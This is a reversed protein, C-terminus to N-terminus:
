DVTAPLGLREYRAIDLVFITAGGVLVEIPSPAYFEGPEVIPMLPNVFRTRAHCNQRVIERVTPVDVLNLVLRDAHRAAVSLAAPGFAPITVTSHDLSAVWHAVKLVVGSAAGMLWWAPADLGFPYALVGFVAAPMVIAHNPRMGLTLSCKSQAPQRM